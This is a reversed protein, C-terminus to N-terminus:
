EGRQGSRSRRTAAPWESSPVPTRAVRGDRAAVRAIIDASTPAHRLSFRLGKGVIERPMAVRAARRATSISLVGASRRMSRRPACLSVSYLSGSLRLTERSTGQMTVVEAMLEGRAALKDRMLEAINELEFPELVEDQVRVVYIVRHKSERVTCYVLQHSM